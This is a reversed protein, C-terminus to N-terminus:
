APLTMLTFAAANDGPFADKDQGSMMVLAAGALPGRPAKKDVALPLEIKVDKKPKLGKPVTCKVTQPVGPVPKAPTATCGKPAKEGVAVYFPTVIQLAADATTAGTGSNGVTLTVKTTDGAKVIENSAQLYLDPAPALRQHALATGALGGFAATAAVTVTLTRLLM